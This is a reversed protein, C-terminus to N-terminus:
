IELEIVGLAEEFTPFLTTDDLTQVDVDFFDTFFSALQNRFSDPHTM